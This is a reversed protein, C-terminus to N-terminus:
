LTKEQERLIMFIYKNIRVYAIKWKQRKSRHLRLSLGRQHM